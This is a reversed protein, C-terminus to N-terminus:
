VQRATDKAEHSEPEEVTEDDWEGPIMFTVCSREEETLSETLQCIGGPVEPILVSYGGNVRTVAILQAGFYFQLKLEEEDFALLRKGRRPDRELTRKLSAEIEPTLPLDKVLQQPL